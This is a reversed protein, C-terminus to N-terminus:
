SEARGHTEAAQRLASGLSPIREALERIAGGDIAIVDTPATVVVSATRRRSWRGSGPRTVGLEGFLDGAGLAAIREERQQVEASGRRIVYLDFAFEGERVAIHGPEWHLLRAVSAVRAREEPTLDDFLAIGELDSDKVDALM